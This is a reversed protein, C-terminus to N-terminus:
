EVKHLTYYNTNNITKSFILIQEKIGYEIVQQPIGMSRMEKEHYGIFPNLTEYLIKKINEISFSGDNNDNTNTRENLTNSESSRVSKVWGHITSKSKNLIAAIEGISKGEDRLKIARLQDDEMEKISVKALLHNDEIDFSVFEITLFNNSKIKRCVIINESGYQQQEYRNKLEKLYILSHDQCSQSVAVISDCLNQLHKSGAIHNKEIAQGLPQKTIHTLVIITIGLEKKLRNLQNMLQLATDGDSNSRSKLASLNDIILVKAGIRIVNLRIDALLLDDYDKDFNCFDPNHDYRHFNPSFQYPNKLESNSYRKLLGQLTLEFDYLIVTLPKCENELNLFKWGRALFEALGFACISKGVGNDGGWINLTNELLLTSLMRKMKPLNLANHLADNMSMGITLPIHEKNSKQHQIFSTGYGLELLKKAALKFDFDCELMAYVAVPNYAKQVEFETSTSFVIFWKKDKYYYASHRSTSDGPRKLNIKSNDESVKQWGHGILLEICNGRNKYDDFPSLGNDREFDPHSVEQINENLARAADFLITREHSSIRPISTFNNQILRYGQSPACIIYGGEGRTEILVKTKEKPNKNRESLTTERAALKQNVGVLKCRYIIHKGGSPTDEIILKPILAEGGLSIILGIYENFLNQSIDYKLDIDIAEVYDSVAGCVIAISDATKFHQKIEAESIINSQYHKWPFYPQKSSTVPICSLGEKRFALAIDIFNGM